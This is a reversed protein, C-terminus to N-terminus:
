ALLVLNERRIVNDYNKYGLIKEIQDSSTGKIRELEESSYDAIGKAIEQEEHILSVIDGPGFKGELKTIGSPLLSGGKQIAYRAGNDIIIRGHSKSFRIWREKNTYGTKLARFLTGLAEGQIIRILIRKEWANAIIVNCKSEMSIKAAEIKTKMGGKTRWSSPEGGISEIEPSIETIEPILKANKHKPNKDYLGHVDTLLVLLEADVKAAVLASLKDNDGFTSEIEHVSIPDNENIIPIAGYKALIAMSNRLNLYTRRNSFAEYTLLLQAVKLDHKRFVSRWTEILISQGIAAAGQRTPIDRPMARLKLEKVGSGIAGSSVIIIQKGTKILENVQKAISDMYKKDLSGDAKTLVSTGIKVVIKKVEQFDRKLDASELKENYYLEL